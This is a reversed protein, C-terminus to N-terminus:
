RKRQTYVPDFKVEPFSQSPGEFLLQQEGKLYQDFFARVYSRTIEINHVPDIEKAFLKPSILAIDTFSQHFFHDVILYYTDSTSKNMVSQLDPLFEEYFVKDKKTQKPDFSKATEGTMMYMFPQELGSHAVKGWFGGELSVGAKFRPDKALTEATTAGGYSHGFIGVRELDLKGDLLGEPDQANWVTLTDLVFSSDKARISIGEVNSEYLAASTDYDKGPVYYISQNDPFTVKASTYPHDMGVVIYGHSVLEEIATLSQFRTSRVGPSFFIVPYEAEASSMAAGRVIHTPILDAHSFLQKPVGFVLSIAEGLDSPYHEVDHKEVQDPDVPYWINIMLERKENHDESLSEARAHDILHRSETGIAYEGTPSPMTFVPLLVSAYVSAGVMAAALVSLISRLWVPVARDKPTPWLIRVLLVIALVAAVLYVLIMQIRFHDMIEHLSTIIIIGGLCGMYLKKNRPGFALGGVAGLTVVVLLVEFLRM